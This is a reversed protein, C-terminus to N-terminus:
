PLEINNKPKVKIIQGDNLGWFSFVREIQQTNLKGELILLNELSKQQVPNKKIEQYIDYETLDSSFSSILQQASQPLTDVWEFFLKIEENNNKKTDPKKRICESNM